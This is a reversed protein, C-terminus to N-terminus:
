PTKGHVEGEVDVAYIVFDFDGRVGREEGGQASQAKVADFEAVLV